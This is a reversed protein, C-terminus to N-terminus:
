SPWPKMTRLSRPTFLAISSAPAATHTLMPVVVSSLMASKKRAFLISYLGTTKSFASSTTAAYSAPRQSTYVVSREPRAAWRSLSLSGSACTTSGSVM